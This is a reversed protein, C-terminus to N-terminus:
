IDRVETAGFVRRARCDGRPLTSRYLVASCLHKTALMHFRLLGCGQWIAARCSAPLAEDTRTPACQGSLCAQKTNSKPSPLLYMYVAQDKSHTTTSPLYRVHRLLGDRTTVIRHMQGHISSGRAVTAVVRRSQYRRSAGALFTRFSLM